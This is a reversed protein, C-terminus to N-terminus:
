LKSIGLAIASLIDSAVNGGPQPAVGPPMPQQPMPQPMPQPWAPKWQDLGPPVPFGPGVRSFRVAKGADYLYFTTPGALRVFFQTRGNRGQVYLIGNTPSYQKWAFRGPLGNVLITGAPHAGNMQSANYIQFTFKAANSQHVWTGSVPTHINGAYAQGAAAGALSLCVALAFRPATM